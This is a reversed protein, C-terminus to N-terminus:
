VPALPLPVHTLFLPLWFLCCAASFSVMLPFIGQSRPRSFTFVCPPLRCRLSDEFCIKSHTWARYAVTCVQLQVECHLPTIMCSPSASSALHM